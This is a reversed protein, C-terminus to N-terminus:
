DEDHKLSLFPFGKDGESVSWIQVVTRQWLFCGDMNVNMQRTIGRPILSFRLMTCFYFLLILARFFLTHPPIKTIHGKFYRQLAWQLCHRGKVPLALPWKLTLAASFLLWKSSLLTIRYFLWSYIIWMCAPGQAGPGTQLCMVDVGGTSSHAACVSISHPETSRHMRDLM